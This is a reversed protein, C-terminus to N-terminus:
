AYARKGLQMAVMAAEEEPTMEPQPAAHAAGPQPKAEKAKHRIAREAWLIRIWGQAAFENESKMGANALLRITKDEDEETREALLNPAPEPAPLPAIEAIRALLRFITSQSLEHGAAKALDRIERQTKGARQWAQIQALFEPSIEAKKGRDAM